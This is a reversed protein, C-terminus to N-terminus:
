LAAHAANSQMLHEALRLSLAAITLTPNCGGGTPYVSSGVVYLNSTGHVRCNRDVVGSDPNDSMRCTGMHHAPFSLERPGIPKIDQAGSAQLLDMAIELARRQTRLDIDNFAMHVHPVPDSFLDKEQPDLTIRSDRNPQMETEVNIDLWHGFLKKDHRALAKGWLHNPEMDRLPDHAFEFELKM